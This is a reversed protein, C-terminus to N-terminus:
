SDDRIYFFWSWTGLRRSLSTSFRGQDLQTNCIRWTVTTKKLVGRSKSCLGLFPSAFVCWIFSYLFWNFFFFLCVLGKLFALTCRHRDEKQICLTNNSLRLCYIVCMALCLDISFLSCFLSHHRILGKTTRVAAHDPIQLSIVIIICCGFVM